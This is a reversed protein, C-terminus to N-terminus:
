VLVPKIMLGFHEFALDEHKRFGAVCERLDLLYWAHASEQTSMKGIFGEGNQSLKEKGTDIAWRCARDCSENDRNGNHSLVHQPAINLDKSLALYTRWLGQHKAHKKENTKWRQQVWKSLHKGAIEVVTKNDCHWIIPTQSNPALQRVAILGLLGGMIEAEVNTAMGLYGLLKYRREPTKIICACAASHPQSGGDSFIEIKLAQSDDSSNNNM